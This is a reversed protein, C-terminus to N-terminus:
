YNSDKKLHIIKISWAFLIIIWNACVILTKRDVFEDFNETDLNM